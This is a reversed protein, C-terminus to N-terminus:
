YENVASVEFAKRCLGSDLLRREVIRYRFALPQKPRPGAPPFGVSVGIAQATQALTLGFELPLLVGQAQRLEDVTWAEAV